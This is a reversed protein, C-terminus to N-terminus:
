IFCLLIASSLKDRAALFRELMVCLYLVNNRIAAASGTKPHPPAFGTAFSGKKSFHDVM